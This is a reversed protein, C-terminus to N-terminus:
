KAGILRKFAEENLTMVNLAAAKEAKTGPDDGLVVYDTSKSVSSTVRAGQERALEEAESRSLTPLSGTFVITKGSLKGSAPAAEPAEIVLHRKLDKLIMKNKKDEIWKVVSEAVIEGVGHIAALSEIDAKELAEPTKYKAAILRATEEGVHDISLAVLLRHLPVRRSADIAAIVNRAAKEKFGPLGMLDGEKLTFLDKYTSILNQDLLLDIIRPGVGDVNLAGKSVFYYLRRRHLTASDKAVCRYAATGPIREISGDGGCESVKKPFVYPKAGKQRLETMVSLIEPIVDGAKQLIVTDGVRIDLRKIQDENHLTARSVTSGAIRVPRLHAVPTLVGTRGVQLQIDEIVTTAQESPFKFAIGYRPSKATYGLVEQYRIENVKIVTGDMGYPMKYKKPAWLRYHAIAENIDRCLEAHPNVTFGLAHLFELEDQQTRPIKQLTKPDSYDIDYAFFSLNRERTVEPDLQRLSGAAANRPNAFLPEGEKERIKNIRNLEEERLWAEGVVTITAPKKLKKPIDDVMRATHTIDEGVVGDGRTTARKLVGKEYELIVKLGDIKHESVYSLTPVRVGEKELYRIIREEWAHLEEESFVNDFSWQRVRHKVKSFAASVAGGVTETPSGGSKLDPYKAELAELERVLSDYAEDSIQPADKTHYLHRHREISEGLEVARKQVKTPVKKM